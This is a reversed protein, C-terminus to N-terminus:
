VSMGSPTTIAKLLKEGESNIQMLAWNRISLLYNIREIASADPCFFAEVSSDANLGITAVFDHNQMTM